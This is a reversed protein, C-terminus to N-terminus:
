REEEADVPTGATEPDHPRLASAPRMAMVMRDVTMVLDAGVRSEGEFILSDGFARTLRADHRVVDGPYVPALFCVRSAGGFLMVQGAPPEGGATGAVALIGAAQAWSEMMLVQPYAPLRGAAEEGIDRYWPENATVAKTAAISEGPVMAEVRDVLLMPYRHPLVSRPNM